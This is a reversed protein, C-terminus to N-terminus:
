DENGQEALKAIEVVGIGGDGLCPKQSPAQKILAASDNRLANTV